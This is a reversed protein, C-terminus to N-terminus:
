FIDFDSASLAPAGGLTAIKVADGAATGNADHYLDGSATDYIFRDDADAAATQGDGSVFANPDLTGLALAFLADDFALQDEGATFDTITDVNAAADPAASFVFRDDGDGGTLTDSGAGGDLTNGGDNGTIVNDLANGTGDLDAEGTLLLNEVNAALAHSASSQVLDTGGGAEEVVSDGTGDLVYTDDGGGGRLVNVGSNGALVNAAANGTANISASGTLTLNELNAGLTYSVSSRVADIGAAFAEVVVDTTSDVIYTDNGAGGHLTDRGAGGDLIDDGDLGFLVNNLANGTLWNDAASGTAQLAAGTLVVNEISSFM